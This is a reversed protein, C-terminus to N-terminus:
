RPKPKFSRSTAQRRAESNARFWRRELKALEGDMWRSFRAFSSLSCRVAVTGQEWPTRDDQRSFRNDNM